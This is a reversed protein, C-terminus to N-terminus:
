ERSAFVLPSFFVAIPPADKVSLVVPFLFICQSNPSAPEFIEIAIFICGKTLIIVDVSVVLYNYYEKLSSLSTLTLSELFITLTMTNCTM